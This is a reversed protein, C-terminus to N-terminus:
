KKGYMAEIAERPHRVKKPLKKGKPTEAQWRKAIDPENAYLYGKQAQSKFPMAVLRVQAYTSRPSLVGVGGGGGGKAGVRPDGEAPGRGWGRRARVV